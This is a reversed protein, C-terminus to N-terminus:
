CPRQRPLKADKFHFSVDESNEALLDFEAAKQPFTNYAINRSNEKSSASCNSNLDKTAFCVKTQTSDMHFRFDISEVNHKRFVHKKKNETMLVEGCKMCEVKQKSELNGKKRKLM